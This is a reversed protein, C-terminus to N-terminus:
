QLCHHDLYAMVKTLGAISRLEDIPRGALVQNTNMLWSRAFQADGGAISDLSCFIRIFLAAREFSHSHTRLALDGRTLRSLTTTNVGIIAALVDSTIDLRDAARLVATILVADTYDFADKMPRLM